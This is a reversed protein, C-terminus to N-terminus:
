RTVAGSPRSGNPDTQRSSEAVDPDTKWRSCKNLMLRNRSSGSVGSPACVGFCAVQAGVLSSHTFGFVCVYKQLKVMCAFAM